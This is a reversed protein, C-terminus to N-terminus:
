QQRIPQGIQNSHLKIRTKTRTGKEKIILYTYTKCCSITQSLCVPACVNSAVFIPLFNAAFTALELLKVCKIWVTHEKKRTFNRARKIIYKIQESTHTHAHTSYIERKWMRRLRIWNASTSLFHLKNSDIIVFRNIEFACIFIAYVRHSLRMPFNFRKSHYCSCVCFIVNEIHIHDCRYFYIDIHHLWIDIIDIREYLCHAAHVCTRM